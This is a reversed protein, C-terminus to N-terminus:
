RELQMLQPMTGKVRSLSATNEASAPSQTKTGSIRAPIASPRSSNQAASSRRSPEM